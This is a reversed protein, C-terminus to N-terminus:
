REGNELYKSKFYTHNHGQGKFRTFTLHLYELLFGIWVRSSIQRCYYNKVRYTVIELINETSFTRSSSRSRKFQNVSFTFIGILLECIIEYKITITITAKDKVIEVIMANSIHM